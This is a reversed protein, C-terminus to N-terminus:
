AKKGKAAPAAEAAALRGQLDAVMARLEDAETRAEALLAEAAALASADAPAAEPAAEAQVPEARVLVQSAEADDAAPKCKGEAWGPMGDFGQLEIVDGVQAGIPWPAKLQTITVKVIV